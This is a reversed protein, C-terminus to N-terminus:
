TPYFTYRDRHKIRYGGVIEEEDDCVVVTHKGSASNKHSITHTKSTTDSAWKHWNGIDALINWLTDKLRAYGLPRFEPVYWGFTSPILYYILDKIIEPLSIFAPL